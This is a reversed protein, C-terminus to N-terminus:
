CNANVERLIFRSFFISKVTSVLENFKFRELNFIHIRNCVSSLPWGGIVVMLFM